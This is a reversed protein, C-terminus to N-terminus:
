CYIILNILKDPYLTYSKGLNGTFFDLIYNSLQIYWPDNLGLREMELEYIVPDRVMGLRNIIPNILMASSLLWTIILVGLLMPFM